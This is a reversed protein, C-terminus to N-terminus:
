AMTLRLTVLASHPASHQVSWWRVMELNLMLIWGLFLGCPLFDGFRSFMVFRFSTGVLCDNTSALSSRSSLMRKSSCSTSAAHIVRRSATYLVTISHKPGYVLLCLSQNSSFWPSITSRMPFLGVAWKSSKWSGWDVVLFSVRLLMCQVTWSLSHSICSEQRLALASSM